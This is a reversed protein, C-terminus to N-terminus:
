IRGHFRLSAPYGTQHTHAAPYRKIRGANQYRGVVGDRIKSNFIAMLHMAVFFIPFLLLNYILFVIISMM